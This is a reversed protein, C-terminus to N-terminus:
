HHGSGAATEDMRKLVKDVDETKNPDLRKAEQLAARAHSHQGLHLYAVGLGLFAPAQDAKLSISEQFQEIAQLNHQKLLYAGGLRLRAEASNPDAAVAESLVEIAQDIEGTQMLAIGQSIREPQEPAQDAAACLNTSGLALCCLVVLTPRIPTAM